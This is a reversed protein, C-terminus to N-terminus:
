SQASFVAALCSRAKHLCENDEHEAVSDKVIGAGVRLSVGKADFVLTRITIAFDINGNMDVYGFAGGYVGRPSDELGALIEMARLKPAGSLTGAPFVAQLADLPSVEPRLVAEIDSVIHFVHAYAEIHFPDRVRVSGMVAVRGVDNRGLDVLMQHECREKPDNLLEQQLAADKATEGTRKRTGAIPRYLMRSGDVRLLTEPSAGVITREPTRFCYMYPSPNIERLKEYVDIPDASTQLRLEQSLVVQFAEGALIKEKATEVHECFRKRSTQRLPEIDALEPLAQKGKPRGLADDRFPSQLIIEEIRDLSLATDAHATVTVTRAVHDIRLLVEPLVFLADPVSPDPTLAIDEFRRAAEFSVYGIYGITLQGPKRADNTRERLEPPLGKDATGPMCRIVDRAGLALFSLDNVGHSRDASELLACYAQDAGLKRFLFLPDCHDPRLTKTVFTSTM